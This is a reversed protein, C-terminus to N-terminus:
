WQQFFYQKKNDKKLFLIFFRFLKIIKPSHKFGHCVLVINKYTEHNIFFFIKKNKGTKREEQM